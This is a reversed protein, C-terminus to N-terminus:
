LINCAQSTENNRQVYEEYNISKASAPRKNSEFFHKIIKDADAENPANMVSTIVSGLIPSDNAVFVLKQIMKLANSAKKERVTLIQVENKLNEKEPDVKNSIAKGSVNNIVEKEREFYEKTTLIQSSSKPKPHKQESWIQIYMPQNLIYDLFKEDATFTFQKSFNFAANKAKKVVQTKYPTKDNFVYFQCYIDEYRDHINACGNIKIIFSINKNLLEKEPNRVIVGGKSPDIITGNAQCPLIEVSVSGAEKSKFDLIKFDGKFSVMYAFSKPYLSATGIQTPTDPSEFFPDYNAYKETNVAGDDKFDLYYESMEVKRDLFKEKTWVWELGLAFNKVSVFPKAHTCYDGRSASSVAMASFKVKKDLAISITNAEEISPLLDMMEGM